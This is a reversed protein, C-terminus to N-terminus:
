VIVLAGIILANMYPIGFVTSFLKAGASFASAIYVTFFVLLVVSSLVRLMRSKDHFRNQFFEPLTVAGGAVLSYRRLRRTVIIWNAATGLALGVGIWAEGTGAAYIAGPLGMLLWGSMDSAQASLAAVWGGLRRGGLFYDSANKSSKFCLGGVVLMMILYIAFALIIWASQTM